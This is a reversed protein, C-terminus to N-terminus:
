KIQYFYRTNPQMIFEDIDLSIINQASSKILEMNNESTGIWLEFIANPTNYKLDFSFTPNNISVSSELNYPNMNSFLDNEQTKIQYYETRIVSDTDDLYDLKYTYTTFEEM